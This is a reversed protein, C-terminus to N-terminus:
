RGITSPGLIPMRLAIELVRAVTDNPIGERQMRMAGGHQATLALTCRYGNSYRCFEGRADKFARDMGWYANLLSTGFKTWNLAPPRGLNSDIAGADDCVFM